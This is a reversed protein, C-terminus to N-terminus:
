ENKVDYGCAAMLFPKAFQWGGQTHLFVNMASAPKGRIPRGDEGTDVLEGNDDFRGYIELAYRVGAVQTVKNNEEDKRERLFPTRKTVKVQYMGKPYVPFSADVATFDPTFISM